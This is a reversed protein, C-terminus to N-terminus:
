LFSFHPRYEKDSTLLEVEFRIEQVIQCKMRLWEEEKSFKHENCFNAKQRLENESERLKKSLTKVNNELTAM